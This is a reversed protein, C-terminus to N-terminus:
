ASVATLVGAHRGMLLKTSSESRLSPLSPWLHHGPCPRYSASRQGRRSESSQLFDLPPPMESDPRWAEGLWSWIAAKTEQSKEEANPYQPAPSCSDRLAWGVPGDTLCDHDVSLSCSLSPPEEWISEHHNEPTQKGVGDETERARAM